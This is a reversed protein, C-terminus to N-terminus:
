SLVGSLLASAGTLLMAYYKQLDELDTDKLEKDFANRQNTSLKKRLQVVGNRGMHDFALGGPLYRYVESFWLLQDSRLGVSLTRAKTDLTKDKKVEISLEGGTGSFWVSRPNSEEEEGPPDIYYGINREEAVLYFPREDRGFFLKDVRVTADTSSAQSGSEILTGEARLVASIQKGLLDISGIVEQLSREPLGENESTLTACLQEVPNPHGFAVRTAMKAESFRNRADRRLAFNRREAGSLIQSVGVGEPQLM